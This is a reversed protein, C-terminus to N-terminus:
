DHSDGDASDLAILTRRDLYVLVGRVPLDSAEGLLRLYRSLQEVHAPAPLEGQTGTKYEM